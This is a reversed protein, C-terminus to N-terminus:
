TLSVGTAFTSDRYCGYLDMKPRPQLPERLTPSDLM